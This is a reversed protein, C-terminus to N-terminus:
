DPDRFRLVGALKWDKGNKVLVRMTPRLFVECGVQAEKAPQTCTAIAPRWRDLPGTLEKGLAAQIAEVGLGTIGCEDSKIGALFSNTKADLPALDKWNSGIVFPPIQVAAGADRLSIGIECASQVRFDLTAGRTVFRVEPTGLTNSDKQLLSGVFGMTPSVLEASQAEQDVVTIASFYRVLTDKKGYIQAPSHFLMQSRGVDQNVPRVGAKNPLDPNAGADLLASVVEVTQVFHLPTNGLNDRANVAAGKALLLAALATNNKQVATHLATKGETNKVDVPAGREILSQAMASDAVDHLLSNGSSDTTDFPAGAVALRDLVPCGRSVCDFLATRGVTDRIDLKAQKSLLADAVDWASASVAEHLPTRGKNNRVDPNARALLMGVLSTNGKRAAEHVATDGADDAIDPNAGRALLRETLPGDGSTVAARLVTRNKSDVEDLSVGNAVLFLDLKDDLLRAKDMELFLHRLHVGAKAVESGTSAFYQAVDLRGKFAHYQALTAMPFGASYGDKADRRKEVYRLQESKLDPALLALQKAAAVTAVCYNARVWQEWGSHPFLEPQRSWYLKLADVSADADTWTAISELPWRHDLEVAQDIKDTPAGLALKFFAYNGSNAACGILTARDKSGLSEIAPLAGGSFSSAYTQLCEAYLARMAGKPIPNDDDRNFLSSGGFWLAYGFSGVIVVSLFFRVRRPIDVERVRDQHAASVETPRLESGSGFTAPCNSCSLKERPVWANCLPCYPM